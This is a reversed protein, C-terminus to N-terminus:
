YNGNQTNSLWCLASNNFAGVIYQQTRAETKTKNARKFKNNIVHFYYKFVKNIIVCICM